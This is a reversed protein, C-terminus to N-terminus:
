LTKSETTATIPDSLPGAGGSNAATVTCIYDTSPMLEEITIETVFQRLPFRFAEEDNVTCALVYYDVISGAPEAWTFTLSVGDVTVSFNQPPLNPAASRFFLM